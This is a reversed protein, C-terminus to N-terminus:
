RELFFNNCRYLLTVKVQPMIKIEMLILKSKKQLDILHNLLYNMKKQKENKRWHFKTILRNRLLILNAIKIYQCPDGQLLSSQFLKMLYMFKKRKSRYLNNPKQDEKLDKKILLLNKPSKKRKNHIRQKQLNVKLHYNTKSM